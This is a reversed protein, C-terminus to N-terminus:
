VIQTAIDKPSVENSNTYQNNFSDFIFNQIYISFVIQQYMLRYFLIHKCILLNSESMAFLYIQVGAVTFMFDHTSLSLM